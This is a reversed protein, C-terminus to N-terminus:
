FGGEEIKPPNSFFYFGGEVKKSSLNESTWIPAFRRRFNQPIKPVLLPNRLPSVSFNSTKKHDLFYAFKKPNSSFYFGGEVKKLLNESFIFVGTGIEQFDPIKRVKLPPNKNRIGRYHKDGEGPESAIGM